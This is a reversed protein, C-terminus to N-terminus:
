PSVPILYSAGYIGFLAVVILVWAFLFLAFGAFGAAMVPSRQALLYDIFYKM